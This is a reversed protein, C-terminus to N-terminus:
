FKIMGKNRSLPKQYENYWEKVNSYIESYTEM